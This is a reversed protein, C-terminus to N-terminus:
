ETDFGRLHVCMGPGYGGLFKLAESSEGIKADVKISLDHVKQEGPNEIKDKEFDIFLRFKDDIESVSKDGLSRVFSLLNGM